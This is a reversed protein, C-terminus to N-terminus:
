PLHKVISTTNSLAQQPSFKLGSDGPLCCNDLQFPNSEAM